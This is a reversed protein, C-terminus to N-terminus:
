LYSMRNLWFPLCILSPIGLSHSCDSCCYSSCQQGTTSQSLHSSPTLGEFWHLWTSPGSEALLASTFCSCFLVQHLSPVEPANTLLLCTHICAVAVGHLSSVGTCGRVEWRCPSCGSDLVFMFFLPSLLLSLLGLFLFSILHFAPLSTRESCLLFCLAGVPFCSSSSFGDPQPCSALMSALSEGAVAIGLLFM